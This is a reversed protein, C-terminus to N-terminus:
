KLKYGAFQEGMIDELDNIIDTNEGVYQVIIRGKKYFHPYSIWSIHTAKRGNNYSAGGEDIYGAEKEMEEESDFIYINIAEENIEIIKRTAPFLFKDADKVEFNYGKDKMAIEFDNIDFVVDNDENDTKKNCGPLLFVASLAVLLAIIKVYLKKM